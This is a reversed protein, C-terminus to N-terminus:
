GECKCVKVVELLADYKGTYYQVLENIEDRTKGSGDIATQDNLVKSWNNKKAEAAYIMSKITNM